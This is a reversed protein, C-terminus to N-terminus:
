LYLKFNLLFDPCKNMAQQFEPYCLAGDEDNDCEKLIHDIICNIESKTLHKDEDFVLRDIAQRIDEKNILGDDDFDYMKFAYTTKITRNANESLASYMDLFDDFSMGESGGTNFVHCIRDGYPNLRLEKTQARIRDCPIRASIRNKNM